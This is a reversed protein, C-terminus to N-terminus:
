RSLVNALLTKRKTQTMHASRSRSRKGCGTCAFEAFSNIATYALNGTAELNESGCCPCRMKTDNYHQAVNPHMNDWARLIMYVDELLAVDQINYDEMKARSEDDGKMVGTWLKFGEHEVKRGVGLYEGLSDLKNSPFRFQKKAILLTDVVRYVSPPKMKHFVMRAKIVKEDFGLLNHAVVMDAESLLKALNGVLTFDTNAEIEEKSGMEFGITSDGLWKYAYSLIFSEQVIQSQNLFQKFRGWVWGLTPSTEIDLLLIKPGRFREAIAETSSGQPTTSGVGSDDSTAGKAFAKLADQLSSRPIGLAKAAKRQSIGSGMMELAAKVELATVQSKKSM